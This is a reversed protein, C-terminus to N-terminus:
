TAKRWTVRYKGRLADWLAAVTTLNLTLFMLFPGLCRGARSLLQHRGSQQILWGLIAAEYFLGQIPLLIGYLPATDRLLWNSGLAAILLFPSALRCIKHSFFEFWLPNMSPFLWRPHQVMLQAAGAITRRKRIAEQGSSQSPRDYAIARPEFLCNYGREIAQM